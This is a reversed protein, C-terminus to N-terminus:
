KGNRAGIVRSDACIKSHFRHIVRLESDDDHSVEAAADARLSNGCVRNDFRPILKGNKTAGITPSVFTAKRSSMLDYVGRPILASINVSISEVRRRGSSFNDVVFSNFVASSSCNKM